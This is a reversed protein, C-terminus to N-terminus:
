APHPLPSGRANARVPKGARLPSSPRVPPPGPPRRKEPEAEPAPTAPPRPTALIPPPTVGLMRCLSRLPRRLPAPAAHMLAVMEPNRFLHELQARYAVAEPVLKLLWGVSQPLKTRRQSPNAQARGPALARHRPAYRGAVVRAALRAFRQNIGKIRELILMFM